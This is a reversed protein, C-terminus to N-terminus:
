ARHDILERLRDLAIYHFWHSRAPHPVFFHCMEKDKGTAVFFKQAIEGCCVLLIEPEIPELRARLDEVIARYLQQEGLRDECRATKKFHKMYKAYVDWHDHEVIEGGVSEYAKRQFPVQSVNMIGLWNFECFERHVLSGISEDGQFSVRPLWNRLVKTVDKGSKGALPYRDRIDPPKVEEIHPSELLLVVKVAERKTGRDEVRFRKLKESLDQDFIHAVRDLLM